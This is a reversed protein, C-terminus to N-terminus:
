KCFLEGSSFSEERCTARKEKEAKEGGETHKKKESERTESGSLSGGSSSYEARRGGKKELERERM